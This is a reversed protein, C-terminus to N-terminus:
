HEVRAEAQLFPEKIIKIYFLPPSFIGKFVDNFSFSFFANKENKIVVFFLFLQSLLLKFM